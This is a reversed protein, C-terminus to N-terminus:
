RREPRIQEDPSLELLEAKYLQDMRRPPFLIFAFAKARGGLSASPLASRCPLRPRFASRAEIRLRTHEGRKGELQFFSRLVALSRIIPGEVDRNIGVNCELCVGQNLTTNNGLSEPIIHSISAAEDRGCYICGSM